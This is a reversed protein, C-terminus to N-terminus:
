ASNTLAAAVAWRVNIDVDESCKQLSAVACLDTREALKAIGEVAAIRVFPAHNRLYGIVAVIASVDGREGVQALVGLAACRM